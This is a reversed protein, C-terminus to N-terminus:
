FVKGTGKAFFIGILGPILADADVMVFPRGRRALFKLKTLDSGSALLEVGTPCTM